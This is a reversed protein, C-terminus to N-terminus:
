GRTIRWLVGTETRPQAGQRTMTMVGFDVVYLASGSPDFRVAIPRELGGGGIRSAPGNQRGRNVAFEQIVGTGLDVRVVKFGVPSLAKGVVPAQDGFLAIFAEGVHGFDARRSIDLGDASGHVDLVAMPKPPHNPATALLPQPRAKGPPDYHDGDDLRRAGHFDPWGYWTGPVIDWLLDGAGHVPRSGRDDYSNDTVLLRGDPAFALGFPNRLGWAVLEPPGGESPIKLIAGSCPVRGGIIQGASTKVGFPSFAGTEVRVDGAPALPNRTQFNQGTLTIDQCPIDHLEPYRKLWGFAANEEGVVGSNTHTGVGFYIRGDPGVAPENAHHDGRTPLGEVLPTARGDATVRLIRGGDLEGGEAIYFAGRDFAVGTWPGNRGGMTVITVRGDPEVRLLRPTTWVEGYAYGAEVVHPRGAEDFAVGTPFTLGSAVVEIRYGPPLAVDAPQVQRPPAFSTQGGGQSPGVEFCGILAIVDLALVLLSWPRRLFSV